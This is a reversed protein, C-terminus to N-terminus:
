VVRDREGYALTKDSICRYFHVVLQRFWALGDLTGTQLAGRLFLESGSTM